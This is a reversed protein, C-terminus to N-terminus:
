TLFSKTQYKTPSASQSFFGTNSNTLFLQGTVPDVDCPDLNILNLPGTGPPFTTNNVGLTCSAITATGTAVGDDGRLAFPGTNGTFTGFGVTVRDGAVGPGFAAGDNFVFAKNQLDAATVARLQRAGDGDGDGDKSPSTKEYPTSFAYTQEGSVEAATGRNRM